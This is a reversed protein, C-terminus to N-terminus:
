NGFAPQSCHQFTPHTACSGLRPDQQFRPDARPDRYMRPDQQRYMRPDQRPDYGYPSGREDGGGRSMSRQVTYLLLQLLLLLPTPHLLSANSGPTRAHMVMIHRMGGIM